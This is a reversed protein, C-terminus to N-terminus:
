HHYNSIDSDIAEYHKKKLQEFIVILNGRTHAANGSSLRKALREGDEIMRLTSDM